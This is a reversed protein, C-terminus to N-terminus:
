AAAMRQQGRALMVMSAVNILLVFALLTASLAAAMGYDTFMTLTRQILVPFTLIKGGGLMTASVFAGMLLNFQILAANAMGPLSLPLIVRWHVRWRSAGHIQAAEELRRPITQIVSFLMMVMFGISLHLYGIVVGPMTGLLQVSDRIIGLERLTRSIIGDAGFVIVMGLIKISISVFSSAAIAAVLLIAFRAPMRAIIYAVPFTMVLSLLTVGLAIGITLEMSRLYTPDTAIELYNAVTYDASVEGLGLDAHLSAKLFLFQTVGLLLLSLVFPPVVLWGWRVNM